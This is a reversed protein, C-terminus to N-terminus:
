FNHANTSQDKQLENFFDLDRAVFVSIKKGQNVIITPKIVGESQLSNQASQSFSNALAERYSASSNPQDVSNVGVNAAGAGIVSLLAATGFQEIFHHDVSDGGMGATGLTDTGPSNLQIDIHDPRIARQWVVFVRRQGQTIADNYQGVLRSGKPLLVDSGDEGYIDQSTVGRVMGPLDSNVRTELTAWIMTGQALTTAPHKIHTAKETPAHSQSLRSMLETNSDGSGDGGLVANENGQKPHANDTLTTAAGGVNATSGDASYVAVPAASRIKELKEAEEDEEPLVSATQLKDVAQKLTAIQKNNLPLQPLQPAAENMVVPAQPTPPEEKKEPAHGAQIIAYLIMMVLGVAVVQTLYKKPKSFKAVPTQSPPLSSDKTDTTM